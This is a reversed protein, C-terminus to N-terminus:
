RPPSGKSRDLARAVFPAAIQRREDPISEGSRVSFQNFLLCKEPDQVTQVFRLDEDQHRVAVEAPGMAVKGELGKPLLV